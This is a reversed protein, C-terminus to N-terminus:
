AIPTARDRLFAADARAQAIWMVILVVNMPGLVLPLFWELRGALALVGLSYFRTNDGLLNWGRVIRYFVERYRRRDADGVIGGASRAAIAAEVRPHGGALWRQMAQYARYFVFLGTRRRRDGPADAAGGAALRGDVVVQTYSNRHYDYMQAHVVNCVGAAVAWPVIAASGGARLWGAIIGLYIAVHTAYGALGDLIRGLESTQGTMRALQGDSSDLIGHLVLLAFGAIALQPFALLAGAAVGVGGAAITVASPTLGARRAARAFLMGVPRHVHVAIREEIERAKFALERAEFALRSPGSV